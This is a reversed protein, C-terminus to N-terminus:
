LSHMERQFAVGHHSRQTNKILEMSAPHHFESGELNKEGQIWLYWGILELNKTNIFILFSTSLQQCMKLTNIYFKWNKGKRTESMNLKLQTFLFM